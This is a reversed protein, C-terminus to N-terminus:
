HCGLLAVNVIYKLLWKRSSKFWIVNIGALNSHVQDKVTEAIAVKSNGKHYLCLAWWLPEKSIRQRNLVTNGQGFACGVQLQQADCLFSPLVCLQLREEWEVDRRLLLRVCSFYRARDLPHLLYGSCSSCGSCSCCSSDPGLIIAGISLLHVSGKNCMFDAIAALIWIENINCNRPLLSPLNTYHDVWSTAKNEETKTVLNRRGGGVGVVIHSTCSHRERGSLQRSSLRRSLILGVRLVMHTNSGWKQKLHQTNPIAPPFCAPNELCTQLAFYVHWQSPQDPCSQFWYVVM